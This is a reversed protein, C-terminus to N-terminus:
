IRNGISERGVSSYTKFVKEVMEAGVDVMADWKIGNEGVM